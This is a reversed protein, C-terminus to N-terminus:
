FFDSLSKGNSKKKKTKEQQIEKETQNESRKSKQITTRRTSPTSRLKQSKLKERRSKNSEIQHKEEIKQLTQSDVEHEQIRKIQPYIHRVRKKIDRNISKVKSFYDVEGNWILRTKRKGPEVDFFQFELALDASM